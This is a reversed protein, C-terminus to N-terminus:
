RCVVRSSLPDASLLLSCVGSRDLLAPASEDPSVLPTPVEPFELIVVHPRAGVSSPLFVANVAHMGRMGQWVQTVLHTTCHVVAHMLWRSDFITLSPSRHSLEAVSALERASLSSLWPIHEPGLGLGGLDVSFLTGAAEYM